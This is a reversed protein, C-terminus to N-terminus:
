WPTHTSIVWYQDSISHFSIQAPTPNAEDPPDPLQDRTVNDEFPAEDEDGILLFARSPCKHGRHYKEDCTFCLGKDRRSALKAPSLRRLPIPNPNPPPLKLPTPLILSNPSPPTFIPNSSIPSPPAQTVLPSSHSSHPLQPPGYRNRTQRRADRLKEEQLQALGAAQAMTLSQLAQVERRIEPSLGSIFCSLLFPALLGVIRNALDEFESLYSNVTGRQMLKFLTSTPDEYQSPAFQSQLAQLFSPWSTFQGNSTMWQFWSLARGDMYFSAITLREHEPTLHYEFFQNIKFIWGLSDSGDFIPVLKIRHPSTTMVPPASSSPSSSPSNSNPNPKQLHIILEDIKHTLGHLTDNLSITLKAIADELRDTNAKSRTSDAM